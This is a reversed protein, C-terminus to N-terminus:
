SSKWIHLSSYIKEKSKSFYKWAQARTNGKFIVFILHFIKNLCQSLKKALTFRTLQWQNMAQTTSTMTITTSLFTISKMCLKNGSVVIMMKPLFVVLPTSRWMVKKITNTISPNRHWQWATPSFCRWNCCHERRARLKSPPPPPTYRQSDLACICKGEEFKDTEFISVPTLKGVFSTIAPNSLISAYINSFTLVKKAPFHHTRIIFDPDACYRLIM